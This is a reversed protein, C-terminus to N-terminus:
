EKDRYKIRLEILRCLFRAFTDDDCKVLRDMVYLEGIIVAIFVLVGAFVYRM